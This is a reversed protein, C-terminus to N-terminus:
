RSHPDGTPLHDLSPFNLHDVFYKVRNPIPSLAHKLQVFQLKPPVYPMPCLTGCTIRKISRATIILHDSNHDCNTTSLASVHNLIIHLNSPQFYLALTNICPEPGTVQCVCVRVDLCIVHRELIHWTIRRLVALQTSEASVAVRCM